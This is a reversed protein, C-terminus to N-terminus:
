QITHNDQSPQFCAMRAYEPYFDVGKGARDYLDQPVRRDECACSCHIHRGGGNRSALDVKDVFALGQLCPILDEAVEEGGALRGEDDKVATWADGMIVDKWVRSESCVTTDGNDEVVLDAATLRTVQLALRGLEPRDLEKDGLEVVKQRVELDGTM